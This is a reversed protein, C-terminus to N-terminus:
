SSLKLIVPKLLEALPAQSEEALHIGDEGPKAVSAADIFACGEQEAVGLIAAALKHSERMAKEDYYGTYFEYFCPAQENILIPSVLVIKPANGNRDQAYQRVDDVLGSIARAIDNASRSYEIKLDNTGLMLIVIDLPTHSGLCPVLYTKGNRGPKRDYDLDTTRSGLGEEVIYYNGGLLSQLRGTWRVDAAYRGTKDPKQGWVNSDGYCLVRIASPNTNM